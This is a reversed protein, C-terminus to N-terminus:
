TLVPKYYCIGDLSNWEGKTHPVDEILVHFDLSRWEEGSECKVMTFGNIFGTATLQQM